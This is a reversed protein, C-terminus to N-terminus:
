FSHCYYLIFLLYQYNTVPLSSNTCKLVYVLFKHLDARDHACYERELKIVDNKGEKYEQFHCLADRRCGGCRVDGFCETEVGDRECSTM